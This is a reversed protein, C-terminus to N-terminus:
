KRMSEKLHWLENGTVYPKSSKEKRERETNKRVQSPKENGIEVLGKKKCIEERHKKNKVVCGLGHNYESSEVKEGLFTTVSFVRNGINGCQPCEDIPGNKDYETISRVVDYPKDCKECDYDYTPM